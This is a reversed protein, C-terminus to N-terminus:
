YISPINKKGENIKANPTINTALIIINSIKDKTNKIKINYVDTKVVDDKVVNILKSLDVPVSVLKDVDLKDKKSKLNSLDTSVNKLKDIDLKDVNFKLNALYIKKSFKSIDLGTAIKSDTKTAYNSFHLQVKVRRGLSKPEPFYENMQVIYKKILRVTLPVIKAKGNLM